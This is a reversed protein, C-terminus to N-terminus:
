DEAIAKLTNKICTLIEESLIVRDKTSLFDSNFFGLEEIRDITKQVNANIKEELSM